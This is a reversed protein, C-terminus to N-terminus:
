IVRWREAADWHRGRKEEEQRLLETMEMIGAGRKCSVGDFTLMPEHRLLFNMGGILLYAVQKGNMTQLIREVDMLQLKTSKPPSLWVRHGSGSTSFGRGNPWTLHRDAPTLILVNKSCPQVTALLTAAM